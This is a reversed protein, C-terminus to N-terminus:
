IRPARRRRRLSTGVVFAALWSTAGGQGGADCCGGVADSGPDDPSLVRVADFLVQRNMAAPEGTNDGLQIYEDGSGSFEFDGLSVWGSASTQDVMVTDSTGAHRVVYTATKSTGLDGGDLHVDVAYSGSRAKVVWRGFNAPAASDTAGSWERSDGYGGGERRWYRPDGAAIYCNSRQDIVGGPPISACRKSTDWFDAGMENFAAIANDRYDNRRTTCTSSTSCCGNYRCVIFSAWAEMTAVGSKMAVGNMWGVSTLWDDAEAIDQQAREVVFNVAQATNGEITLISNGYTAITQAYTGSDFQFMGLGGQMDSCPGDASGAIVPGGGCSPSAPGKCAYTAESQCHALQTESTAIGALLAANHLGMEAAADRILGYREQRVATTIPQEVTALEPEACSAVAIM